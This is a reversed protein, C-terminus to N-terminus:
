PLQETSPPKPPTGPVADVNVPPRPDRGVGDGAPSIATIFHPWIEEWFGRAEASPEDWRADYLQNAYMAGSSFHDWERLFDRANGDTGEADGIANWLDRAAPRSLGGQRRLDLVERRAKDAADAVSLPTRFRSGLMKGMAYDFSLGSLFERWDCGIHSWHRGFEGFDSVVSVEVWHRLSDGYGAQGDRIFIHAWAWNNNVLYCAAGDREVRPEAKGIASKPALVPADSPGPIAGSVKSM